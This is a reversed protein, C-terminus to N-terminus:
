AKGPEADTLRQAEAKADAMRPYVRSILLSKEGSASKEVAWGNQPITASHQALVVRYKAM